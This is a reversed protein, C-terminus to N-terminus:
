VLQHHFHVQKMSCSSLLLTNSWILLNLSTTDLNIYPHVDENM